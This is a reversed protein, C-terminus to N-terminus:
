KLKYIFSLKSLKTFLVLILQKLPFLVMKTMCHFLGNTKAMVLDLKSMTM